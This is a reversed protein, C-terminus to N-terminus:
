IVDFIKQLLEDYTEALRINQLLEDYTEALRISHGEKFHVVGEGTKSKEIFSVNYTNILAPNKKRFSKITAPFFLIPNAASEIIDRVDYPPLPTHIGIDHGEVFIITDNLGETIHTIASPNILCQGSNTPIKIM